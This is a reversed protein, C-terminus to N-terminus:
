DGIFASIKNVKERSLNSISITTRKMQKLPNYLRLMAVDGSTVSFVFWESNICYYDQTESWKIWGVFVPENEKLGLSVNYIM